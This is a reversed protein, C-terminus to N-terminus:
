ALGAALALPPSLIGAAALIIGLYFLNTTV